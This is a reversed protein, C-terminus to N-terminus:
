HNLQSIKGILEKRSFPKGLFNIPYKEKEAELRAYFQNLNGSIYLTKVKPDHKRIHDIMEFGNEEPMLIDTIVVQPRFQLYTLFGGAGNLELKPEYGELELMMQIVSAIAQDDDVVLIRM